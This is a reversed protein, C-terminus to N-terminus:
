HQLSPDDRFRCLGVNCARCRPWSILSSNEPWGMGARLATVEAAPCPICNADVTRRHRFFRVAAFVLGILGALILLGGFLQNVVGPELLLLAGILLPLSAAPVLLGFFLVLEAGKSVLPKNGKSVM